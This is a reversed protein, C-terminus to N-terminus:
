MSSAAGKLVCSDLDDGSQFAAGPGPEWPSAPVRARLLLARAAPLARRCSGRPVRPPPPPAHLLRAAPLGRLGRGRGERM